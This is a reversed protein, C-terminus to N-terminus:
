CSTFAMVTLGYFFVIVLEGLEELSKVYDPSFCVYKVTPSLVVELFVTLTM